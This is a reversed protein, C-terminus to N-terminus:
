INIQILKYLVLLPLIELVCLYLFSYFISFNVKICIQLGRIIRMIFVISLITFGLYVIANTYYITSYALAIIIPILFIGAIRNFQFVNYLYESYTASDLFIYGLIKYVAYKILYISVISVSILTFFLFNNRSFSSIAFFDTCLIIFLSFSLIFLINSIFSLRQNVVNNEKFLKVAHQYSWLSKISDSFYRSYLMRLITTISLVIILIALFWDANKVKIHNANDISKIPKIESLYAKSSDSKTSDIQTVTNKKLSINENDYLLFTRKFANNLSDRDFTYTFNKVIIDPKYSFEQIKIEETFSNTDKKIELKETIKDKITLTDKQVSKFTDTKNILGSTDKVTSKASDVKKIVTTSDKKPKILKTTDTNNILSTTDKIIQPIPTNTSDPVQTFNIQM